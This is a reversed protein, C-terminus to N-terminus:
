LRQLEDRDADVGLPYISPPRVTRYIFKLMNKLTAQIPASDVSECVKEVVNLLM